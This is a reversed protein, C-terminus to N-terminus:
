SVSKLEANLQVTGGFTTADAVRFGIPPASSIEKGALTDVATLEIMYSGPPLNAQLTLEM